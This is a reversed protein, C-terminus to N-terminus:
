AKQKFIDAEVQVLTFHKSHASQKTGASGFKQFSKEAGIGVMCGTINKDTSLADTESVRPVRDVRTNRQNCFVPLPVTQDHLHPHQM